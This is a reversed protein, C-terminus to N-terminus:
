DNNFADFPIKLIEEQEEMLRYQRETIIYKM